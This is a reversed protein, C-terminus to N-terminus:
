EGYLSEIEEKSATGTTRLKKVTVASATNAFLAAQELSAGSAYALAVASLFTDGAGVIDIEGTVSRAPVRVAKGNESVICGEGGLTVIAPKGTKESLRQAIESYDSAEGVARAAEVENPKVIVGKYLAIRDRSDVFVTKGERGLRIIESRVRPTVAGNAMQDSVCYVDADITNLARILKNETEESLPTHNEFDLRPDEYMVDSIGMRVPKIYTNTVRSEDEILGCLECGANSLLKKLAEGRWDSGIVGAAYVRKPKLALANMIVNGAGGPSMKEEVVPLPYHPVERSLESKKMDALWYVDLCLDGIVCVKLKSIGEFIGKLTM